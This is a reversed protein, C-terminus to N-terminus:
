SYICSKRTYCSRCRTKGSIPHDNFWRSSGFKDSHFGFYNRIVSSSNSMRVLTLRSADVKRMQFWIRIILTTQRTPTMALRISWCCRRHGVRINKKAFHLRSTV